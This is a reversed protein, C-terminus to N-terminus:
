KFCSKDKKLMFEIIDVIPKDQVETVDIGYHNKIKIVVDKIAKVDGNPGLFDYFSSGNSVFIGDIDFGFVFGVLDKMKDHVKSIKDVPAFKIKQSKNESLRSLREYLPKKRHFIERLKM